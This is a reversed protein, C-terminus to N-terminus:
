GVKNKPYKGTQRAAIKPLVAMESPILPRPWVWLQRYGIRIKPTSENPPLLQPLRNVSTDSGFRPDRNQQGRSLPQPPLAPPPNIRTPTPPVAQLENSEFRLGDFNSGPPYAPANLRPPIDAPAFDERNPIRSRHSQYYDNRPSGLNSQPRQDRFRSQYNAYESRLDREQYRGQEYQCRGGTCTGTENPNLYQQARYSNRADNRGYGCSPCGNAFEGSTLSSGYQFSADYPMRNQRFNANGYPLLEISDNGGYHCGGRESCSSSYGYGYEQANVNTAQLAWVIAIVAFANISKKM